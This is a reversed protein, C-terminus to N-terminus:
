ITRSWEEGKVKHGMMSFYSTGAIACIRAPRWRQEPVGRPENTGLYTSATRLTEYDHLFAKMRSEPSQPAARFVRRNGFAPSEGDSGALDLEFQQM